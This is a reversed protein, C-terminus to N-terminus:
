NFTVGLSANLKSTLDVTSHAVADFGASDFLPFSPSNLTIFDASALTVTSPFSVTLKAFEGGRFTDETTAVTIKVKRIAASYSGFVIRNPSTIGSGTALAAASIVNTGPDTAVSTGVPLFAALVVGQVPVPLQATSVVNFAVTATKTTAAPASSGGGGGGCAALLLASAILPFTKLIHNM